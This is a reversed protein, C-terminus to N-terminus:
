YILHVVSSRGVLLTVGLWCTCVFIGGNKNKCFTHLHITNALIFILLYPYESLRHTISNQDRSFVQHIVLFDVHNYCVKDNHEGRSPDSAGGHQIIGFFGM